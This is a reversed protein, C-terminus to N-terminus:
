VRGRGWRAKGKRQETKPPANETDEWTGSPSRRHRVPTPPPDCLSSWFSCILYDFSNYYNSESEGRGRLPNEGRGKGPKRDTPFVRDKRGEGRGWAGGRREGRERTGERGGNEPTSSREASYSSHDGTM